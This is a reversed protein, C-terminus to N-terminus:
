RPGGCLTSAPLNYSFMDRCELLPRVTTITAHNLYGPRQVKLLAFIRLLLPEPLVEFWKTTYSKWHEEDAFIPFHQSFVRICLSSLSHQANLIRESLVSSTPNSDTQLRNDDVSPAGITLATAKQRKSKQSSHSKASPRKSM